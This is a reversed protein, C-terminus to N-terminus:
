LSERCRRSDRKETEGVMSSFKLIREKCFTRGDKISASLIVNNDRFLYFISEGNAYRSFFYSDYYNYVKFLSYPNPDHQDKDQFHAFWNTPKIGFRVSDKDVSLVDFQVELKQAQDFDWISNHGVVGDSVTVKLTFADGQRLKDFTRVEKAQAFMSTLVLLVILLKTKM